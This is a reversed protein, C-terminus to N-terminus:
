QKRILFSPCGDETVYDIIQDFEVCFENIACVVSPFQLQCYDHGMIYGGKKVKLYAYNIDMKVASYSHDADIYIADLSDNEIDNLFNHSTSKIIHVNDFLEFHKTIADYSESMNLYKFNLGDKDGSGVMGDFTDVLYLLSPSLINYIQKSFNGEFIGIEAISINKPLLHLLDTRTKLTQM